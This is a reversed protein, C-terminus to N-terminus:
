VGHAEQASACLSSKPCGCRWPSLSGCACCSGMRCNGCSELQESRQQAKLAYRWAVRANSVARTVSADAIRTWFAQDEVTIPAGDIGVSRVASAAMRGWWRADRRARKEETTMRAKAM